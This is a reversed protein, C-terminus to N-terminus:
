SSASLAGAIEIEERDDVHHVKDILDNMIEEVLSDFVEAHKSFESWLIQDMFPKSVRVMATTYKQGPYRYTQLGHKHCVARFLRKKWMNKLRITYEIPQGATKEQLRQKALEAANREGESSARAILAEIKRIKDALDM